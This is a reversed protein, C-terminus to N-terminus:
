NMAMDEEWNENRRQADWEWLEDCGFKFGPHKEAKYYFVCDEVNSSQAKNDIVLATHNVAIEDMVQSFTNFDGVMSCFTKYMKERTDKMKENLIFIYDTLGRLKPGLDLCHQLSLITMMNWHRSLKFISQWMKKNFESAEDSVDDLCLLGWPIEITKKCKKQRDIFRQVSDANYENEIFIDPIFDKFFAEEQETGSFVKTVPFIHKHRYYVDKILTSKGSGPKGIMIVKSEPKMKHIPFERIKLRLIEQGIAKRRPPMNDYANEVKLAIQVFFTFFFNEFFM